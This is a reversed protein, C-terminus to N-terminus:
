ARLAASELVERVVRGLETLQFPKQLLPLGRRRLDTCISKTDAYGSMFLVKLDPHERAMRQYFQPGSEGPMVVDSLLLAVEDRRKRYIAEAEETNAASVTRYGFGALTSEVLRRVDPDDEVILVLENGGKVPANVEEHVLVQSEEVALHHFFLRFRTGAGPKSDVTIAAKHKTVIGYVTALGLGTGRGLAKTTFFPEFVRERIAEDMGQGTDSVDLVVYEGAPLNLDPRLDKLIETYTKIMLSGGKPMADRSNVALNMLVREIQSQDALILDRETETGFTLQIDEGIVRALMSLAGQVLENLHVPVPHLPQRRSFTLMQKTLGTARDSFERIQRIEAATPSDVGSKLFAMDAALSIGTLINNFDHAIGGALKGLAEMKQSQMLRQELRLREREAEKKDSVERMVVLLREQESIKFRTTRIEGWLTGGGRIKLRCEFEHHNSSFSKSFASRCDDLSLDFALDTFVRGLLDGRDLGLMDCAKPNVDEIKGTRPDLVWIGEQVANFIAMYNAESTELTREVKRRRIALQMVELALIVLLGVALIAGVIQWKSSKWEFRIESIDITLESGPPLTFAILEVRDADLVRNGHSGPPQYFQNRSLGRLPLPTAVWRDSVFPVVTSFVESTPHNSDVSRERLDIQIHPANGSCRWLLQLNADRAAATTTLIGFGTWGDAKGIRCRLFKGPQDAAGRSGDVIELAANPYYSFIPTVGEWRGAPYSQFQAVPLSYSSPIFILVGIASFAVVAAVFLIVRHFPHAFRDLSDSEAKGSVPLNQRAGGM